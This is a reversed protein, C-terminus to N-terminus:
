AVHGLRLIMEVANYLHHYGFPTTAIEAQIAQQCTQDSQVDSMKRSVSHIQALM